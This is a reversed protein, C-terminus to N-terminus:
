SAPASTRPQAESHQRSGRSGSMEASEPRSAGRDTGPSRLFGHTLLPSRKGKRPGRSGEPPEPAKARESAWPLPLSILLLRRGQERSRAFLKPPGVGWGWGSEAPPPPPSSPLPTPLVAAQRTRSIRARDLKGPSRLFGIPPLWFINQQPKAKRLRFPRACRSQAESPRRNM